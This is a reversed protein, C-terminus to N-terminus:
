QRALDNALEPIVVLTLNYKPQGGYAGGFPDMDDIAPLMSKADTIQGAANRKIKLWPTAMWQRQLKQVEYLEHHDSYVMFPKWAGGENEPRYWNNHWVWVVGDRDIQGVVGVHQEGPMADCRSTLCGAVITGVPIRGGDVSNLVSLFARKDLAGNAQVTPQPLRYVQGGQTNVSRILSYVGEASYRDLGSLSLVKSVNSACMRPQPYRLDELQHDHWYLASKFIGVGTSTPHDFAYGDTRESRAGSREAYSTTPVLADQSTSDGAADDETTASCGVGMALASFIILLKLAKM